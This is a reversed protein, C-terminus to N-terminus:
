ACGREAMSRRQRPGSTSFNLPYPVQRAADGVVLELQQGSYFRFTGDGFQVRYVSAPQFEVVVGIDTEFSDSKAPRVRNGIKFRGTM